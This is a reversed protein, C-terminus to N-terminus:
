ARVEALVAAYGRELPSDGLVQPTGRAALEAPTGHFAIRGAHMVAVQDCTTAVDEALHTSVVV